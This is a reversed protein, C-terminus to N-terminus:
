RFDGDQIATGGSEKYWKGNENSYSLTQVLRFTHGPIYVLKFIVEEKSPYSINLELKQDRKYDKEKQNIYFVKNNWVITDTLKYNSKIFYSPRLVNNLDGTKIFTSDQLCQKIAMKFIEDGM